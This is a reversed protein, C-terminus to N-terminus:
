HLPTLSLQLSYHQNESGELNLPTMQNLPFIFIIEEKCLLFRLGDSVSQWSATDTFTRKTQNYWKLLPPTAQSHLVHILQYVLKYQWWETGNFLNDTSQDFWQSLGYPGSVSSKGFSEIIKDLPYVSMHRWPGHQSDLSLKQNDDDSYKSLHHWMLARGVTTIEHPNQFKPMSPLPWSWTIQLM